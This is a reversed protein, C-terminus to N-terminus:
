ASSSRRRSGCVGGTPDVDTARALVSGVASGEPQAARTTALSQAQYVWKLDLSAANVPKIQDLASDRAGQLNGSYTLWNRPEAGARAIRDFPAQTPVLAPCIAALLIPVSFRKM